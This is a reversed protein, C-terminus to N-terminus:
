TPFSTSIILSYDRFKRLETNQIKKDIADFKTALDKDTLIKKREEEIKEALEDATSIEKSWGQNQPNVSHKAEFDM